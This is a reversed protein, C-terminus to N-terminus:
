SEDEDRRREASSASQRARLPERRRKSLPRDMAGNTSLVLDRADRRGSRAVAVADTGLYSAIVSPDTRVVAPTGSCIVRGAVMAYVRDCLGMLLPMDHEVILISCDLEDRIRRLLPGFAEAERQAIGATPEDLLLVTPRTAMQAALDCIRRTGTSLSSTLTDAWEGLGLRTIVDAASNLNDAEAQRVWPAGISSALMGARYQKAM